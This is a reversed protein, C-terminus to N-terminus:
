KYKGVLREQQSDEMMVGGKLQSLASLYPTLKTLAFKKKSPTTSAFKITNKICKEYQYNDNKRM